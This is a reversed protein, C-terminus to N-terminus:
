KMTHFRREVLLLYDGRWRKIRRCANLRHIWVQDTRPGAGSQTMKLLWRRVTRPTVGMDEAAEAQTFWKGQQKRLQALPILLHEPLRALM